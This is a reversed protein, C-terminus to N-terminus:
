LAMLNITSPLGSLMTKLSWVCPQNGFYRANPCVGESHAATTNALGGAIDEGYLLLMPPVPSGGM